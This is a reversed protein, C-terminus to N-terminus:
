SKRDQKHHVLGPHLEVWEQKSDVFLEDQPPFDSPTEFLVSPLDTADGGTFRFTVSSGCKPCFGREAKDSSARWEREAGLWTIQDTPFEVWTVFPAGSAKQCSTCHCNTVNNPPGEAEFAIHGCLCSGSHKPM